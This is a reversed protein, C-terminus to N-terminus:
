KPMPDPHNPPLPPPATFNPPYIPLDDDTMPPTPAHLPLNPVEAPPEPLKVEFGPRPAPATPLSGVGPAAVVPIAPLASEPTSVAALTPSLDFKSSGPDPDAPVPPTKETMPRPAHLTPVGTTGMMVAARPDDAKNGWAPLHYGPIGSLPRPVTSMSPPLAPVRPVPPSDSNSKPKPIPLPLPAPPLTVPIPAVPTPPITPDIADAAPVASTVLDDGDPVLIPVTLYQRQGTAVAVDTGYKFGLFYDRILAHGEPTFYKKNTTYRAPPV